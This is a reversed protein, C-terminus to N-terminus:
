GLDLRDDQTRELSELRGTVSGGAEARRDHVAECEAAVDDLGAGVGVSEGVCHLPQAAGSLRRHGM